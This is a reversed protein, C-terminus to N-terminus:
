PGALYGARAKITASRGKVRVEIRHWGTSSVGTASYSVLYRERFEKLIDLFIARLDKTTEIEFMSGGTLSTLERLFQAKGEGVAVGYVVGDSRRATDLVAAPTLWSSTDSGDSFVVILARGVDSEGVVIGAYSADVLATAGSPDAVDLATRVMALDRTLPARLAVAHNFTILAAQDEAQLGGLLAQSAVRLHELREGAVSDSLDFVLVLNLPIQELSALEVRQAVGNDTVEFDSPHLGLVPQGRDTVLVDVRVVETKSSFTPPRQAGVSLSEFAVLLAVGTFMARTM